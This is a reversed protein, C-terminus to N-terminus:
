ENKHENDTNGETDRAAYGQKRMLNLLEDSAVSYLKELVDYEAALERELQDAQETLNREEAQHFEHEYWDVLLVQDRFRKAKAKLRNETKMAGRRQAHNLADLVLAMEQELYDVPLGARERRKIEIEIDDARKRLAEGKRRRTM